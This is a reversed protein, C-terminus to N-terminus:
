HAMREAWQEAWEEPTMIDATVTAVSQTVDAAIQSPVLKGLRGMFAVPNERAQLTLYGVLGAKGGATDAAEFVADKLLASTKNLTGKQRGGTKPKGQGAM